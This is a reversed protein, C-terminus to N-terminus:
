FKMHKEYIISWSMLLSSAFMLNYVGFEIYTFFIKKLVSCCTIVLLILLAFYLFRWYKCGCCNDELFFM